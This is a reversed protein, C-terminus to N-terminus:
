AGGADTARRALEAIAGLEREAHHQRLYLHLDAQRQALARDVVFPRPGFARAFRDAIDTCTREVTHRLSRARLEAADRDLPDRDIDEGAQELLAGLTWRAAVLAGVHALQHPDDDVFRIAADVLGLAGGAWCAAPGCAGHWFGSRELYWSATAVIDDAEIAVDALVADGTATDVLAASNWTTPDHVLTSVDVDVLVDHTATGVTVLARDVVGVGSCFRKTGRLRGDTIAPEAQSSSAWVGYLCGDVPRRGAEHLISVADVHAEALRGVSITNRRSVEMLWALRAATRGEGPHGLRAAELVLDRLETM